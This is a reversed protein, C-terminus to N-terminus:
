RKQDKSTIHKPNRKGNQKKKILYTMRINLSPKSKELAFHLPASNQSM